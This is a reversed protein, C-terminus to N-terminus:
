RVPHGRLRGVVGSTVSNVPTGLRHHHCFPYVDTFVSRAIVEGIFREAQLIAAKLKLELDTDFGTGALRLNLKLGALNPQYASNYTRNTIM